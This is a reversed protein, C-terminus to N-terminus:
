ESKDGWMYQIFTPNPILTGNRQLGDKIGRQKARRWLEVQEAIKEMCRMAVAATIQKEMMNVDGRNTSVHWFAETIDVNDMLHIRTQFRSKGSHEDRFLRRIEENFEHVRDPTRGGLGLRETCGMTADPTSSRSTLFWVPFTQDSHSKEIHHLLTEVEHGYAQPSIDTYLRDVGYSVFFIKCKTYTRHSADSFDKTPDAMDTLNLYHFKFPRQNGANMLPYLDLFARRYTAADKDGLWCVLEYNSLDGFYRLRSSDGHRRLSTPKALANKNDKLTVLGNRYVPQHLKRDVEMFVFDEQNRNVGHVQLKSLKIANCEPSRQTVDSSGCRPSYVWAWYNSSGDSSGANGAFNFESAVVCTDNKKRGVANWEMTNGRSLCRLLTVEAKYTGPILSLKEIDVELLTVNNASSRDSDLVLPPYFRIEPGIFRIRIVAKPCWSKWVYVRMKYHHRPDSGSSKVSISLPNELSVAMPALNNRLRSVNNCSKSIENSFLFFYLLINILVTIWRTLCRNMKNNGIDAGRVCWSM